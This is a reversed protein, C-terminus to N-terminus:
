YLAAPTCMEEKLLLMHMDNIISKAKLPMRM